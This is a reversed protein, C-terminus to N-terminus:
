GDRSVEREPVTGARAAPFDLRRPRFLCLVTLLVGATVLLAAPLSVADALFGEVASALPRSGAFGVMWLAMVRGRLEDPVRQQILTVAATNAVMFGLGAVTFAGLALGVHAAGALVVWGLVMVGLGVQLVRQQRLWLSVVNYGFFGLVAGAGFAGTLRGVLATDGGLDAAITPALTISPESAFGIGAVVVLLVLMTPDRRVYHLAVRVRFDTGDERQAGAPLAALLALVVFVLHAGAALGFALAPSHHAAVFAGGAPGAVRAMTWPLSNMAMATPLEGRRIVLPVISQLAPGGVVFGLGAVLTAALVVLADTHSELPGRVLCFAAAGASGLAAVARGAVIQRGANGRYAWGGSLPTLFIQPVFQAVTVLGVWLASATAAYVVVAAVISHFWIGTGSLLNGWFLAGFQRDLALRAASRPPGDKRGVTVRAADDTM